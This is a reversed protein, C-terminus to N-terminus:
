LNIKMKKLLDDVDNMSLHLNIDINIDYSNASFSISKFVSQELKRIKLKLKGDASISGKQILGINRFLYEDIKPKNKTKYILHTEAYKKSNWNLDLDYDNILIIGQPIFYVKAYFGSYILGFSTFSCWIGDFCKIEELQNILDILQM